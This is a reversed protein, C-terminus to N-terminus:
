LKIKEILTKIETACARYVDLDGGYPDAVDCGTGAFEGLTFVKASQPLSMKHAETMTLILDSAEFMYRDIQMSKHNSLDLGLEKAVAASNRSAGGGGSAMGASAAVGNQM